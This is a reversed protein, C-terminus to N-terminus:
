PLDKRAVDITMLIMPEIILHIETEEDKQQEQQEQQEEHEM